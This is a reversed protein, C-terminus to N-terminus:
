EGRDLFSCLYMVTLMPIIRMDVKRWLRMEQEITLRPPSSTNIMSYGSTKDVDTCEELMGAEDKAHRINGDLPTPLKSM